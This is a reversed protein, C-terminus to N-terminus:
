DEDRRSVWYYEDRSMHSVAWIAIINSEISYIISYPFRRTFHRRTDLGYAPWAHPRDSIRSITAYVERAFADGLGPSRGELFIIAELFELEAEPDFEANM